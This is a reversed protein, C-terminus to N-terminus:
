RRELTAQGLGWAIEGPAERELQASTSRSHGELDRHAALLGHPQIQGRKWVATRLALPVLAHYRLLFSPRAKSALAMLLCVFVDAPNTFRSVGCLYPGGAGAGAELMLAGLCRIRLRPRGCGSGRAGAGHHIPSGSVSTPCRSPAMDAAGTRAEGVAAEALVRLRQPGPKPLADSSIIM